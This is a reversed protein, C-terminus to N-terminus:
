GPQARRRAMVRRFDNVMHRVIGGIQGVRLDADRGAALQNIQHNYWYTSGAHIDRMLKRPSNAGITLRSVDQDPAREAEQALLKRSLDPDVCLPRALGILDVEGDAVAQEMLARDRFGGTVALPMTAVARIRRAYDLFYAERRRTSERGAPPADGTQGILALAEYTGGSIELLDLGCANIMEVVAVCDDLTFGGKQFDASNLKLGVAFDAGVAERVAGLIRLLLRARNELPGGWQDTRRNVHPSLFQSILYGHAGHVQAGDFGTDRAVRAVYAYRAIVDEIDAETMAVPQSFMGLMHVQVASPALPQPNVLRPCQRGPHNIQMWFANGGTKGARAMRELAARDVKEDVVVNGARELYRRDVMVNGSVLLGTGGVSWRQYLRDLAATPQDHADALNETMASKMLRNPLTQGCPLTLSQDLPSTM